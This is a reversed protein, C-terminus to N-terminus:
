EGELAAFAAQLVEAPVRDYAVVTGGSDACAKAFRSAWTNEFVVVLASSNAELGEAILDLDKDSLLDVRTGAIVSLLDMVEGDEIELIAVDGNADKTVLAMDLIHVIGSDELEAIAPAVQGNFKNGEFHIALIDVPGVAINNTSV